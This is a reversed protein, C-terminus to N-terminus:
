KHSSIAYNHLKNFHFLSSKFNNKRIGTILSSIGFCYKSMFGERGHNNKMLDTFASPTSKEQKVEAILLHLIKIEAERTQYHLNTDVTVREASFRNVLTLRTYYIWLVAQYNSALLQTTTELYEKAEGEIIAGKLVHYIRNKQTRGKNNKLKIEFFNLKSEVYNRCRIKYRNLKGCHHQRYLEFDLTDFYTSAYNFMRLDNIELIRYSDSLTNLFLPLQSCNFIFKKDVRDMLKVDEMQELSISEFTKLAEILTNL